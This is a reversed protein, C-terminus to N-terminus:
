CCATSTACSASARAPLRRAARAHGAAGQVLPEVIVAAVEDATSARAARALHDADGPTPRGPTSCCRASAPTSSTSAASRSRASRTATTPTQAACIFRTASAARRPPALVPVGDEARGRGRDLRQRLLLRPTLGPPAITSSGAPSSSRAAPPILGLMTSHAVRDLQARVAADIAPHRTATSTAGCRRSATSTPTATPTTSRRARRGARDHAAGGRSWGQQQTFPHWLLRRDLAALDRTTM